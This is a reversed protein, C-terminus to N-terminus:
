ALEGLSIPRGDIRFDLLEVCERYKALLTDEDKGGVYVVALWYSYADQDALECLRDGQKVLPIVAAEPLRAHIERLDKETPCRTMVGDQFVRLHFKGACEFPGQHRPFRPPDGLALEVLVQHNSAGDVEEFLYSHSQSIRTNIELLWIQDNPEDYFFEINFPSSDFGMHAMAREGIESIREKVSEDLNSPYHYRFFSSRNPYNISDIVGYTHAKGRHVYGALTCQRGRMISEAVCHHGDVGAVEPPLDVLSLVHDFPEAFRGIGSRIRKIADDLQDQDQILFGLQSSFAKVPKLWVPFDLDLQSRPNEAFPDIASFRPIHDGVVKSQEIRSWYKHECKVVSRLSPARTGFQQALIPVMPSIPFDWFGIIADISGPFSRLQREASRLWDALPYRKAGQVEELDLLKHFRYRDAHEINQLRELNFDNLGVVFVNKAM